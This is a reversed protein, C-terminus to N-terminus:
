FESSGKKVKEIEERYLRDISQLHEVFKRVASDPAIIKLKEGFNMCWSYFLSDLPAAVTAKFRTVDDDCPILKTDEGFKDYIDGALDNAACITVEAIEDPSWMGFATLHDKLEDKKFKTLREGFTEDEDEMGCKEMRDIRYTRDGKNEVYCYLYYYGNNFILATPEAVIRNGNNQYIREKVGLYFYRFSIKKGTEIADDICKVTDLVEENSHKTKSFKIVNEHWANEKNEGGLIKLGASLRDALGKSLFSASQVMDVLVRLENADLDCVPLDDECPVYYYKKREYKIEVKFPALLERLQAIDRYFTKRECKVKQSNLLAVIETANLPNKKSTTKIINFLETLRNKKKDM